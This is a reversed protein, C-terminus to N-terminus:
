KGSRAAEVLDRFQRDLQDICQNRELNVIALEKIVGDKQEM